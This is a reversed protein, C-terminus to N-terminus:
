STSRGLATSALGGVPSPHWVANIEGGFLFLFANMYFFM